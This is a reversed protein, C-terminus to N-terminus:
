DVRAAAPRLRLEFRIEAAVKQVRQVEYRMQRRVSGLHHFLYAAKTDSEFAALIVVERQADHVLDCLVAYAMNRTNQIVPTRDGPRDGQARLFLRIGMVACSGGDAFM